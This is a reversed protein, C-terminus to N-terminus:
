VKKTATLQDINEQTVPQNSIKLAATANAYVLCDRFLKGQIHATLFGANFSDGAGVTNMPKVLFGGVDHRELGFLGISGKEARKIVIRASTRALCNLIAEDLDSGWLTCFEEESPLYFDVLAVRERLADKDKETVQNTIRGHDLIIQVTHKHAEEILRTYFPLLTRLKFYGGLYLYKVQPLHEAVKDYMEEGTLSGNASGVGTMLTKGTPDVFNLGLNTQVSGSRIFDAFIGKEHMLKTILEGATDKGIKGIFVAKLGLLSSIRALTVASGGLAIEYERGITETEPRLGNGFPFNTSNIDLYTAGLSLVDYKKIAM